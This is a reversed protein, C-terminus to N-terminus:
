RMDIPGCKPTKLNGGEKEDVIKLKVITVNHKMIDEAM